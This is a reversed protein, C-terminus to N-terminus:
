NNYYKNLLAQFKSPDKKKLDLLEQYSATSMDVKPATGDDAKDVKGATAQIGPTPEANEFLFGKEKKLSELQDKLGTLGDDNFKVEDTNIFPMIAKTDRVKADRLANNIANTKKVSLLEAKATAESEKLQQQLDAITQKAKDNNTIKGKLEELQKNSSDVQSKFTDRETRLTDVQEKLSNVSKGYDAMITNIQDKELGMEELVKREM